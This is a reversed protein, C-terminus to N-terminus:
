LRWGWTNSRHQLMRKRMLDLKRQQIGLSRQQRLEKVKKLFFLRVFDVLDQDSISLDPSIIKERYKNMLSILAQNTFEHKSAAFYVSDDRIFDFSNPINGTYFVQFHLTWGGYEGVNNHYPKYGAIFIKYFGNDANIIHKKNMM